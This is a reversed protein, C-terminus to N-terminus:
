QIARWKGPGAPVVTWTDGSTDKVRMGQYVYAIERTIEKGVGHKFVDRDNRYCVRIKILLEDGVEPDRLESMM